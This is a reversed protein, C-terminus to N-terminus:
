FGAIGTAEITIAINKSPTNKIRLTTTGYQNTKGTLRDFVIDSGGGNLTIESIELAGDLTIEKNNVDPEIFTAGRFSVIRSSEFHVGYQFGGKSSLTNLRAQNLLSIVDEVGADLIKSARFTSFPSVIIAALIVIIGIVVLLEIITLGKKHVDTLLHM